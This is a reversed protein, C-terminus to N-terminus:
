RQQHFALYQHVKVLGLYGEDRVVEFPTKSDFDKNPTTIWRYALGRNEPYVRRLYKHIALLLSIRDQIDRYQPLFHQGTKYNHISTETNPSLGLAIAQQKYTIGWREFLKMILATQQKRETKSLPVSDYPSFESGLETKLLKM